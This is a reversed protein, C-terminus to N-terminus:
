YKGDVFFHTFLTDYSCDVVTSRVRVPTAEWMLMYISLFSLGCGAWVKKGLFFLVSNKIVHFSQKM